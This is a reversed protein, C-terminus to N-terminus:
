VNKQCPYPKDNHYPCCTSVHGTSHSQCCCHGSGCIVERVPYEASNSRQYDRFVVMRQLHHMGPLWEAMENSHQRPLETFLNHAQVLLDMIKQEEPNLAM